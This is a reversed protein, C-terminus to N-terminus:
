LEYESDDPRSLPQSPNTPFSKNLLIEIGIVIKGQSVLPEILVDFRRKLDYFFDEESQYGFIPKEKHKLYYNLENKYNPNKYLNELFNDFSLARNQNFKDYEIPPNTFYIKKLPSSPIRLCGIAYGFESSVMSGEYSNPNCIVFADSNEICSLFNSELDKMSINEEGKFRVFENNSNNIPTLDTGPALIQHGANKLKKVTDCVATWGPEHFSGGVTIKM